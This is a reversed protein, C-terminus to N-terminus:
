SLLVASQVIHMVWYFSHLYFWVIVPSSLSSASYVSSWKSAAATLGSHYLDKCCVSTNRSTLITKLLMSARVCARLPTVVPGASGPILPVSIVANNETALGRTPKFGGM